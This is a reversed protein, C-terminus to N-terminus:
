LIAQQTISQDSVSQDSDSQNSIPLQIYFTSGEHDYHTAWLKGNHSDLISKCISLGLGVGSEKTSFFPTFITELMDFSVGPGNDEISIVIDSQVRLTKITILPKKVNSSVMADIANRLLNVVVQEILIGDVSVPPITEDLVSNIEIGHWNEEVVMLVLVDKILSNIDTKGIELERKKSLKKLHRIIQSARNVQDEIEYFIESVDSPTLKGAYHMRLAAVSYNAIAALPQNIEHAIEATMQGILNIRGVHALSSLHTMVNMKQDRFFTIDTMVLYFNEVISNTGSNPILNLLYTKKLKKNCDENGDPMDIEIECVVEKGKLVFEIHRRLASYIEKDICDSLYKGIYGQAENAFMKNHANNTFIYREKYDLQAIVVPLVNIISQFRENNANKEKEALVRDSIDIIATQIVKEDLENIKCVSDLQVHLVRGAVPKLCLFIRSKIESTMLAHIHNFFQQSQELSLFLTFPKEIVSEREQGLMHCATLNIEKICGSKDFSAYGTPAFDYLNAFKDRSKELEFQSEMLERNKVELELQHLRLEEFLGGLRNVDHQNDAQDICRQCTDVQEKLEEKKYLTLDDM